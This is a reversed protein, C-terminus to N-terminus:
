VREYQSVCWTYYYEDLIYQQQICRKSFLCLMIVSTTTRAPTIPGAEAQSRHCPRGQARSIRRDCPGTGPPATCMAAPQWIRGRLLRVFHKRAALWLAYVFTHYALRAARQPWLARGDSFSSILYSRTHRPQRPTDHPLTHM